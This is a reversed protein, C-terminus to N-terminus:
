LIGTPLMQIASEQCLSLKCVSKMVTSILQTIVTEMLCQNRMHQTQDSFNTENRSLAAVSAIGKVLTVIERPVRSSKRLAM